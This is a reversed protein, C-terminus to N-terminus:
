TDRRGRVGSCSSRRARKMRQTTSAIPKPIAMKVIPIMRCRTAGGGAGISGTGGGGAASAGTVATGGGSGCTNTGGGGAMSGAGAAVASGLGGASALAATSSVSAGAAITGVAVAVGVAGAVAGARGAAGPGAVAGRGAAAGRAAASGRGVARGAAGDRGTGARRVVGPGAGAGGAVADNGTSQCRPPASAESSARSGPSHSLTCRPITRTRAKTVSADHPWARLSRLRLARWGRACRLAPRTRGPRRRWPRNRRRLSWRRVLRSRSSCCARRQWPGLSFTEAASPGSLPCAAYATPLM